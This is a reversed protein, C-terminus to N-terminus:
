HPHPQDVGTTDIHFPCYLPCFAFVATAVPILGLLGWWSEQQVGVFMMACGAVFRVGADYSGVNHKM